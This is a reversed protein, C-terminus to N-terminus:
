CTRFANDNTENGKQAIGTTDKEENRKGGKLMKNIRIYTQKKKEEAVDIQKWSPSEGLRISWAILM